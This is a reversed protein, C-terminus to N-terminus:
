KLYGATLIYQTYDNFISIESSFLISAMTQFTVIEGLLIKGNFVNDLGFILIIIPAFLQFVNTSSNYLIYVISREKYYNCIRAM